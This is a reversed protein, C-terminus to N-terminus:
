RQIRYLLDLARGSRIIERVFAFMANADITRLGSGEKPRSGKYLGERWLLEGAPNVHTTVGDEVKRVFLGYTRESTTGDRATYAGTFTKHYRYDVASVEEVHHYFTMSNQDDLDLVGIKGGLTKLLGFPSDEGYGSFNDVGEFRHANKGIACFSYIPHGTRVADARRRGVETLAGMQSPSTRIDFPVGNAFDFNFLPLVLTGDPGLAALLSELVDNVGFTKDGGRRAAVLTRKVDSHLLLTDGRLVGSERWQTVLHERPM